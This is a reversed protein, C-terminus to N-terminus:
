ESDPDLNGEDLEDRIDERERLPSVSDAEMDLAQGPLPTYREVFTSVTDALGNWFADYANVFEDNDPDLAIRDRLASTANEFRDWIRGFKEAFDQVPVPKEAKEAKMAARAEGETLAEPKRQAAKVLDYAYTKKFGFRKEAYDVFSEYAVGTAPHKENKWLKFQKVALLADAAKRWFAAGKEANNEIIHELAALSKPKTYGSQPTMVLQRAENMRSADPATDSVDIVALTLTPAEPEEPQQPPQSKIREKATTRRRANAADLTQQGKVAM